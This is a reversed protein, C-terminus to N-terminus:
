PDSRRSRLLMVLRQALALSGEIRIRGQMASTLVDMEGNLIRELDEPTGRITCDAAGDTPSVVTFRGDDVDAAWSDGNAEFQFRGTFGRFAELSGGAALQELASSMDNM